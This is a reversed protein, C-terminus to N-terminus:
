IYKCITISAAVGALYAIVGGALTYKIYKVHTAGFYITITYFLTEASGMMVCAARGIYSDPGYQNIIDKVVGLSGSGSIPKILLMGLLEKPFGIKECFPNMWDEIIALTHSERFLSIVMFIAIMYPMIKIATKIGSRAGEIFADYVNIKEKIGFLLIITIMLPMISYSLSSAIKM